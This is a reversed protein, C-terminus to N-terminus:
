IHLNLHVIFSHRNECNLVNHTDIKPIGKNQFIIKQYKKLLIDHVPYVLNINEIEFVINCKDFIDNINYEVEFNLNYMSDLYVNEYSTIPKCFIHVNNDYELHNHWSPIILEEGDIYIKYINANLMDHITPTITYTNINKKIYEEIINLTDENIMFVDKYVLILKYVNLLIKIDIKSIYDHINDVYTSSINFLFIYLDTKNISYIFEKFTTEYTNNPKNDIYGQLYDYAEKIEIFKDTANLNKNKDPHYKLAMLRYQKRISEDSITNVDLELINYARESNM